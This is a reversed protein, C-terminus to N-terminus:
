NKDCNDSFILAYLTLSFCSLVREIQLHVHTSFFYIALGTRYRYRLVIFSLTNFNKYPFSFRQGHLPSSPHDPDSSWSSLYSYRYNSIGICSALFNGIWDYESGCQYLFLFNEPKSKVLGLLFWSRFTGYYTYTGTSCDDVRGKHRCIDSHEPPTESGAWATGKRFCWIFIWISSM